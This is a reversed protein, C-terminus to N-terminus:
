VINTEINDTNGFVVAAPWQAARDACCPFINRAEACKGM